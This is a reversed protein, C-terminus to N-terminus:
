VRDKRLSASARELRDNIGEGLGTAPITAVAIAAFSQDLVRLMAFLNAAAEVLDGRSSLNLTAEVGQPAPGFALFAEGSEAHSANMRLRASPAYHRKMMGPAVVGASADHAKLPGAIAEIDERSLAGPRLLVCGEGTVAVITSEIGSPCAGGDIILDIRDGLADAVHTALTPSLRESPNASPAAIPRGLREIIGTTAPHKPMRVAITSLGATALESVPCDGTKTLVLTLPGPWFAEALRRALPTFIALTEAMALSSVHCILPNFSPRGKAAYIGAVAEGNTADAALGYVTETPVAVLGGARLVTAARDLNSDDPAVMDAVRARTSSTDDTM